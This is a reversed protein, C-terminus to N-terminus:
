GFSELSVLLLTAGGEGAVLRVEGPECSLTDGERLEGAETAVSHEISFVFNWRGEANWLYDEDASLEHVEVNAGINGAETFVSFDVVPGGLLECRSRIDGPFEYPELPKVEHIEEPEGEEYAHVMRIGKGKLIVLIREHAPFMSFPSANEIRASSLRWKFDGKALTASEPYIAIEDTFGLGNKWTARKYGSNTIIKM